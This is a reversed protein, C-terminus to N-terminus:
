EPSGLDQSGKDVSLFIWGAIEFLLGFAAFGGALGTLDFSYFGLALFFCVFAGFHM